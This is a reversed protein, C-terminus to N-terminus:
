RAEALATTRCELTHGLAQAHRAQALLCRLNRSRVLWPLGSAATHESQTAILTTGYGDAERGQSTSRATGREDDPAQPHTRHANSSGARIATQPRSGARQRPIM